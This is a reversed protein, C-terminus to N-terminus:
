RFPDGQNIVFIQHRVRQACLFRHLYPAFELMEDFRDRFPVIVAMRHRGWSPEDCVLVPSAGAADYRKERVNNLPDPSFALYFTGVLFVAAVTV